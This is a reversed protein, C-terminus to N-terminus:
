LLILTSEDDTTDEYCTGKMGQEQSDTGTVSRDSFRVDPMILQIMSGPENGINLEVPVKEMREYHYRDTQGDHTYYRSYEFTVDRSGYSYEFFDNNESAQNDLPTIHNDLRFAYNTFGVKRDGSAGTNVKVYAHGVTLLEGLELPVPAFGKVVAGATQNTSVGAADITITNATDNVSIVKHGQASNTDSGVQIYCGPDYNKWAEAEGLPIVVVPTSTGDIDDKLTATGACYKYKAFGNFELKQTEHANAKLDMTNCVAGVIFETTFQRVNIISLHVLKDDRGYHNHTVNTGPTVTHKGYAALILPHLNSETGSAGSMRFNPILKWNVAEYGVHKGPKKGRSFSFEDNTSHKPKRPAEPSATVLITNSTTPMTFTAPDSQVCAFSHEGATSQIM